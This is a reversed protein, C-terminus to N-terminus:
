MLPVLYSQTGNLYVKTASYYTEVFVYGSAYQNSSSFHFSGSSNNSQLSESGFSVAIHMDTGDPAWFTGSLTGGQFEGFVMSALFVEPYGPVQTPSVIVGFSHSTSIVPVTEAAWYAGIALVTIIPVLIVWRNVYWWVRLSHRPKRPERPPPTPDRELPVPSVDLKAYPPNAAV